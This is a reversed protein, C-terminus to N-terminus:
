ASKMSGCSKGRSHRSRASVTSTSARALSAATIRRFRAREPRSRATGRGCVTPAACHLDVRQIAPLSNVPRNAIDEREKGVRAIQIAERWGPQLTPYQRRRRDLHSDAQVNFLHDAPAAQGNVPKRFDFFPSRSPIEHITLNAARVSEPVVRMTEFCITVPSRTHCGVGTGPLGEVGDGAVPAASCGAEYARRSRSRDATLRLKGLLKRM